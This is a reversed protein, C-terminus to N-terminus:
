LTPRLLAASPKFTPSRNLLRPLSPAWYHPKVQGQAWKLEQVVKQCADLVDTAVVAVVVPLVLLHRAQHAPPHPLAPLPSGPGPDRWTKGGWVLSLRNLLFYTFFHRIAPSRELSGWSM